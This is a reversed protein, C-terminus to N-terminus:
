RWTQRPVRVPGPVGKPPNEKRDKRIKELTEEPIVPPKTVM